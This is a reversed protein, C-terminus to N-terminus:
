LTPGQQRVDTIPDDTVCWNSADFTLADIGAASAIRAHWRIAQRVQEAPFDPIPVGAPRGPRHRWLGYIGIQSRDQYWNIEGEPWPYHLTENQEIVISDMTLSGNSRLVDEATHVHEPGLVKSINQMIQATIQNLTTYYASVRPRPLEARELVTKDPM